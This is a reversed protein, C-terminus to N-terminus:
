RTTRSTASRSARRSTMSARGPRFAGPNAYGDGGVFTTSAAYRGDPSVRARSPSGPVSIKGTVKQNADFLRAEYTPTPLSRAQSLCIGHGSAFAVRECSLKGLRRVKDNGIIVLRGWAKPHKRDRDLVVMDGKVIKVAPASAGPLSDDDKSNNILTIGLFVAIVTVAVATVAVFVGVRRQRTM